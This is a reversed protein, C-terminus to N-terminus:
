ADEEKKMGTLLSLGGDCLLVSGTTNRNAPECLFAVYRAVEAPAILEHVPVQEIAGQKIAPDKDFIQKSLGADVYGPAVENVLIRHPAYEMAMCKCLMRLGAKAVCYAPIHKHAAHAAWSGIFVIRGPKGNAILRRATTHALYFSGTLNVDLHKQWNEVTISSLDAVEVIAANPIIVDATGLTREVEGVWASVAEANSVDVQAYHFRRALSEIENGLAVARKEDAIDGVAIDAGCRALELACARGIDGLGGSIIAVHGNLTGLTGDDPM